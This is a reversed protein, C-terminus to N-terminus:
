KLKLLFDRSDEWWIRWKGVDEGYDNHAIKKLAGRAAERVEKNEDIMLELLEEVGYPSELYGLAEAASKKVKADKEKLYPIIVESARKLDTIKLAWAIKKILHEDKCSMLFKALNEVAYPSRLNVLIEAAEMRVGDDPDYKVADVIANVAEANNVKSLYKLAIIRLSSSEDNKTVYILDNVVEKLAGIEFLSHLARRRINEDRNYLQHAIFKVASPDGTEGLLGLLDDTYLKEERREEEKLLEILPEVFRKDKFKAKSKEKWTYILLIAERKQWHNVEKDKLISIVIDFAQPDEYGILARAVALKVVLNTDNKLSLLLEKMAEDKKWALANVMAQRGDPDDDSLANKIRDM